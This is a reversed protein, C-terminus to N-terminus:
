FRVLLHTNSSTMSATFRAGMMKALLILYRKEENGYVSACLRRAVGILMLMPQCM